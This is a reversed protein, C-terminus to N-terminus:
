FRRRGWISSAGAAVVLAAGVLWRERYAVEAVFGRFTPYTSKLRLLSLAANARDIRARSIQDATKAALAQSQAISQTAEAAQRELKAKLDARRQLDLPRGAWSPDVPQTLQALVRNATDLRDQQDSIGGRIRDADDQLLRIADWARTENESAAQIRGEAATRAANGRGWWQIAGQAGILLVILAGAAFVVACQLLLRKLVSNM